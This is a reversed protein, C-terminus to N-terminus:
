VRILENYATNTTVSIHIILYLSIQENKRFATNAVKFINKCEGNLSLHNDMNKDVLSFIKDLLLDNM